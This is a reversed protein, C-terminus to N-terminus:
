GPVEAAAARAKAAAEGGSQIEKWLRRRTEASLLCAVEHSPDGPVPELAPDVEAHRPKAYPCRPHFHCGSPPMILSPPRGAIPV